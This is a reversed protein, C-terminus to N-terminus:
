NRTNFKHVIAGKVQLPQAGGAEEHAKHQDQSVLQVDQVVAPSVIISALELGEEKDSQLKSL